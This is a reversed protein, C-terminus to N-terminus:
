KSLRKLRSRTGLSRASPNYPSSKVIKVRKAIGPVNASVSASSGNAGAINGGTQKLKGATTLGPSMTTIATTKVKAPTTSMRLKTNGPPPMSLRNQKIYNYQHALQPPVTHGSAIDVNRSRLTKIPIAAITDSRLWRQPTTSSTTPDAPTLRLGTSLTTVTLRKIIRLECDVEAPFKIILQSAPLGAPSVSSPALHQSAGLLSYQTPKIFLHKVFLRFKEEPEERDTRERKDTRSFRSESTEQQYHEESALPIHTEMSALQNRSEIATKIQELVRLSIRNNSAGHIGHSKNVEDNTKGQRRQFTALTDLSSLPRTHPVEGPFVSDHSVSLQGSAGRLKTFTEQVGGGRRLFGHKNYSKRLSLRYKKAWNMPRKSQCDCSDTLLESASQSRADETRGAPHRLTMDERDHTVPDNRDNHSDFAADAASRSKRRFIRRLGRLPHFRRKKPEKPLLDAHRQMALDGLDLTRHNQPPPSAERVCGMLSLAGGVGGTLTSAGSYSTASALSNNGSASSMRGTQFVRSFWLAIYSEKVREYWGAILWSKQETKQGAWNLNSEM